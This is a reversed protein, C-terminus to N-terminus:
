RPKRKREARASQDHVDVDGGRRSAKKSSLPTVQGKVNKELNARVLDRTKLFHKNLLEVARDADRDVAAEMIDRHEDLHTPRSGTIRALARARESADFLTECFRMLWQSRCGSILTLHFTRHAEDWAPNRNDESIKEGLYRRCRSLRHYAILVQEEWEPGANEISQRLGIENIWCKTRTLEELDDLSFSAVTFGRQASQVVLGESALRNLAERIPSLGIGLTECIERIRLKTGPALRATIIETRLKQYGELALTTGAAYETPTGEPVEAATEHINMTKEIEDAMAFQPVFLAHKDSM